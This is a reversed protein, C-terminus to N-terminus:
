AVNRPFMWARAQAIQAERGAVPTRPLPLNEAGLLRLLDGYPAGALRRRLDLATM